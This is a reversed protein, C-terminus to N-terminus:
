SHQPHWPGDHYDPCGMETEPESDGPHAFFTGVAAKVDGAVVELLDGIAWLGDIGPIQVMEQRFITFRIEYHARTIPGEVEASAILAGEKAEVDGYDFRIFRVTPDFTLSGDVVDFYSETRPLGRHKDLNNLDGLTTLSFYDGYDAPNFTYKQTRVLDAMFAASAVAKLRKSDDKFKAPTDCIPFGLYLKAVEDATMGQEIRLHESVVHDLASRFCNLADGFMLPWTGDALVVDYIRWEIRFVNARGAIASISPVM